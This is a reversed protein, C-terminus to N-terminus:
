KTGTEDLLAPLASIFTELEDTTTTLAPALRITRENPANVIFGHKRAVVVLQTAVPEALAIGLLLGRGRVDAIRADQLERVCRKVYDGAATVDALFGPQSLVDLVATAAACALPNGGFTTGHQGAKLLSSASEGYTILAGVPVGGALGKALTMADPTIGARQHAFWEGTRGVGTQVEDVIMLVGRQATVERVRELYGAPPEVVGAEGQIPEILVAGVTDDLVADLADADGYPVRQVGPILPEFPTRYAEKATLSLAGMTRGHFAGDAVVVGPRGSARALKFAAENAETGSNCFFVRSGAPAEALKLLREALEIQSPTTFFNSTHILEAAQRQVAQVLRPHGHGLTNVAIGGLLDLYRTGDAAVVYSGEGRVLTLQPSGFVGLLSQSYRDAFDDACHPTNEDTM